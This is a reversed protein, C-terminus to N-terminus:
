HIGYWLVYLKFNGCVRNLGLNKIVSRTKVQQKAHDFAEMWKRTEGPNSCAIKLFSAILHSIRLRAESKKKKKEISFLNM